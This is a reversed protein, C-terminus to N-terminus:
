YLLALKRYTSTAMTCRKVSKKNWDKQIRLLKPMVTDELPQGKSSFIDKDGGSNKEENELKVTIHM